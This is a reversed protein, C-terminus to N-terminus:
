CTEAEKRNSNRDRSYWAVAILTGIPIALVIGISGTLFRALEFFSHYRLITLFHFGNRMCLMIFPISAAVNAFFMIGLMTGVVDDGVTRCSKWLSKKDAEPNHLVIQDVTMVITVVVDMIAGLAGILIEALFIYGADVPDFPQMLYEMFNYDVNSHQLVLAAIATTVAATALVAILSVWTKRNWGHMFVLLMATFFVVMPITMFLINHGNLYLRLVVYFAAINLVLSVITMAGEKGAVLLFLAFLLAAVTAAVYDRKTETVNGTLVGDEGVVIKEVFVDDGKKYETDYVNSSTCTHKATLIEGRHEGNQIKITLTQRYYKEEYERKGDFGKKIDTETNEVAKVTGITEEYLVYDNKVLLFVAATVLLLILLKRIYTKKQTTKMKMPIHYCIKRHIVIPSTKQFFHLHFKAIKLFIQVAPFSKSSFHVDWVSFDICKKWNDAETTIM